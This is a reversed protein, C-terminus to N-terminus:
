ASHRAKVSHPLVVTPSTVHACATLLLGVTGLLIKM